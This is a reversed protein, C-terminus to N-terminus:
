IVGGQLASVLVKQMDLMLAQWKHHRWNGDEFILELDTDIKRRGKIGVFKFVAERKCGGLSSPSMRGHPRPRDVMSIHHSRLRRRAHPRKVLYMEIAETLPEGEQGKSAEMADLLRGIIRTDNRATSSM